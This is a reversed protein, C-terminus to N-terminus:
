FHMALIQKIGVPTLNNGHNSADLNPTKNTITQQQQDNATRILFKQGTVPFLEV